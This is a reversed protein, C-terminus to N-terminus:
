IGSSRSYLGPSFKEVGFDRPLSYVKGWQALDYDGFYDLCVLQWDRYCSRAISEAMGRISFGLLLLKVRTEGEPRFSKVWLM